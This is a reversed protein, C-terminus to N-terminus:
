CLWNDWICLTQELPTEGNWSRQAAQIPAGKKSSMMVNEPKLDKHMIGATGVLIPLVPLGGLFTSFHCPFHLSLLPSTACKKTTSEGAFKSSSDFSSSIWFWCFSYPVHSVNHLNPMTQGRKICSGHGKPLLWQQWTGLPPRCSCSKWSSHILASLQILGVLCLFSKLLFSESQVSQHNLNKKM